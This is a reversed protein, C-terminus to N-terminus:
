HVRQRVLSALPAVSEPRFRRPTDDPRISVVSSPKPVPLVGDNDIVSQIRGKFQGMLEGPNPRMGFEAGKAVVSADTTWWAVTKTPALAGHANLSKGAKAWREIIAIVYGLGIVEGKKSERAEVCAAAVTELSVGQDALAILQPHAPQTKVGNKRFTISLAVAGGPSKDSKEAVPQNIVIEAPHTLSEPNLLDPNLIGCEPNLANNCQESVTISVNELQKQETTISKSLRTQGTSCKNKGREHITYFGNEDPLDSDKELGHPAQHKIFNMIQIVKAGNFEYVQIFGSKVLAAVGVAVNVDDAPFIEMKIRKPRCELRGERDALTWLGIFLLRQEFPLEVLEENKFFSPKINRARAM